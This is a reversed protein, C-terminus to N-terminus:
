GMLRITWTRGDPFIHEIYGGAPIGTLNDLPHDLYRTEIIQFARNRIQIRIMNLLNLIKLLFFPPLLENIEVGM